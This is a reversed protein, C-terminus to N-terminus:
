VKLALIEEIERVSATGTTGLQHIVVSSAASALELASRLDAGAALSSTLNATVADGAGVIDIEGRLPLAPVHECHGDPSAGIIGDEALTVFVDRTQKRALEVALTKVADLELPPKRGTLFALEARNMKFIVKPYGRLGRRSDAVILPKDSNRALGSIAELLRATVVGTEPM